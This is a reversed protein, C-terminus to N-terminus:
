SCGVVVGALVLERPRPRPATRRRRQSAFPRGPDSDPRRGADQVAHAVVAAFAQAGPPCQAMERIFPHIRGSRAIRTDPQRTRWREALTPWPRWPGWPTEACGETAQACAGPREALRARHPRADKRGRARASSPRTRGRCPSSRRRSSERLGDSKRSAGRGRRSPRSTSGAREGPRDRCRLATATRRRPRVVEVSDAAHVQDHRRILARRDFRRPPAGGGIRALDLAIQDPQGFADQRAARSRGSYGGGVTDRVGQDLAPGFGAPLAM